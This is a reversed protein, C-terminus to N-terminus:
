VVSLFFSETSLARFFFEFSSGQKENDHIYSCKKLFKATPFDKKETESYVGVLWRPQTFLKKTKCCSTKLLRLSPRLTACYWLNGRKEPVSCPNCLVTRLGIRSLINDCNIIGFRQLIETSPYIENAVSSLYFLLKTRFFSIQMVLIVAWYRHYGAGCLAKYTRFPM